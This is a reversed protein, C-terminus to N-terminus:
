ASRMFLQRKPLLLHSYKGGAGVINYLRRVKSGESTFVIFPQTRSGDRVVSLGNRDLYTNWDIDITIVIDSASLAM